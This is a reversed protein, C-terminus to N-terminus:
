QGKNNISKKKWYLFAPIGMFLMILGIMSKLPQAVVTNFFVALNILVFFIPLIPYGWARYPRKREPQKYRLVIVSLGTAAFFIVLAFVVFEYLDQYTGSLCLLASWLAQGLLAKTPVRYRPHIFTMSKFFSGDEAMAFYVRPGYLVTASLCGFISVMIAASIIFTVAPGFLQTSALEGIRAVGKMKDVPLAMIYVLNVLFYVLTVTLTGLLLGLPINREPKKIEEATCNVSYWGDYTWLVAILALGFPMIFANLSFGTESSFFQNYNLIGSKKGLVLGFIIIAAVSALRLFTFINQVVIGSKIGFYNVGSLILISAVAVLQGTSLSYNLGLVSLQFLYSQTSLFPVFYGLYEAFGVALAAIGGCMIFWFFGWGYFFGAWSGYAERIYIYQGGAQPFMAGLEAFSLAGSIAIFGGVLWVILILGPSPLYEAIFGTTMFIGSGIVAGIVLFTTDLLNLKRLFQPKKKNEQNIM